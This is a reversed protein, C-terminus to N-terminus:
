NRSRGQEALCLLQAEPGQGQECPKNRSCQSLFKQAQRGSGLLELTPNLSLVRPHRSLLLSWKMM